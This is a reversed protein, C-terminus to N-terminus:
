PVRQFEWCDWALVDFSFHREQVVGDLVAGARDFDAGGDGILSTWSQGPWNTLM